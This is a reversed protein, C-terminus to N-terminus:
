LILDTLDPDETLELLNIVPQTSSGIDSGVSWYAGGASEQLNLNKWERAAGGLRYGFGLDLEILLYNM